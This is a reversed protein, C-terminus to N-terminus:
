DITNENNKRNNKFYYVSYGLAAIGVVWAVFILIDGTKVNEKIEDLTKDNGSNDTSNNEEEDDLAYPISLSTYGAHCMGRFTRECEGDNYNTSDCSASALCKEDSRWFEKVFGDACPVNNNAGDTGVLEASNKRVNNVCSSNYKWVTQMTKIKDAGSITPFANTVNYDSPNFEQATICSNNDIDFVDGKECYNKTDSVEWKATLTFENVKTTDTGYKSMDVNGFEALNGSADYWGLFKYYKNNEEDYKGPMIPMTFSMTSLLYVVRSTEGNAFYGGNTDFTVKYWSLANEVEEKVKTETLEKVKDSLTNLTNKDAIGTSTLGNDSQFKKVCDTTKPGYSGDTDLSCSTVSNLDKQLKTVLPGSCGNQLYDSNCMLTNVNGNVGDYGSGDNSYNSQNVCQSQTKGTYGCGPYQGWLLTGGGQSSGGCAYCGVKVNKVECQSKTYNTKSCSSNSYYVGWRFTAGGQSSGGCGFCAASKQFANSSPRYCTNNNKNETTGSPCGTSPKTIYCSSDDDAYLKYGKLCCRYKGNAGLMLDLGNNACYYNDISDAGANSLPALFMVLAILLIVMKGKKFNEKM